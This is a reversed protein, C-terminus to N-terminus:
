NGQAYALYFTYLPSVSLAADKLICELSLFSVVTSSSWQFDDKGAYQASSSTRSSQCNSGNCNYEIDNNKM